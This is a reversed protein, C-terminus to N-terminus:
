SGFSNFIKNNQQTASIERQIRLVGPVSSNFVMNIIGLTMNILFLCTLIAEYGRRVRYWFISFLTSIQFFTTCCTTYQLFKIFQNSHLILISSHSISPWGIIPRHALYYNSHISHFTLFQQHRARGLRTDSWKILSLRHSSRM